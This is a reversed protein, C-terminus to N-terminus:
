FFRLFFTQRQCLINKFKFNANDNLSFILKVNAYSTKSNFDKNLNLVIPRRKVNVYSTKSDM